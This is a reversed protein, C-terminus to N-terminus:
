DESENKKLIQLKKTMADADNKSLFYGILAVAICIVAVSSAIAICMFSNILAGSLYSILLAVAEILIFQIAKRIIMQKINLEKRSYTLFSPLVCFFAYVFPMFFAYYKLGKESQTICGIIGVSLTIGAQILLFNLLCRKLFDKLEM